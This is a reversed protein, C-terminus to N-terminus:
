KRFQNIIETLLSQNTYDNPFISKYGRKNLYEATSKGMAIIQSEKQPIINKLYAEAQSPSSYHKVTFDQLANIKLENNKYFVHEVVQDKPIIESVRNLSKNGKLVCVKENDALVNLFSLIDKQTSIGKGTFIVSLGVQKLAYETSPGLAAIKYGNLRKQYDKILPLLKAAKPSQFFLWDAEPINGDM